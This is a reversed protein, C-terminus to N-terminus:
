TTNRPLKQFSIALYFTLAGDMGDQFDEFRWQESPVLTLLINKFKVM